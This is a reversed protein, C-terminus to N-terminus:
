LKAKNLLNKIFNEVTVSDIISEPNGTSKNIKVTLIFPKDNKEILMYAASQNESVEITKLQETIAPAIKPLMDDIPLMSLIKKAGFGGLGLM